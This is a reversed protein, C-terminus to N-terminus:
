MQNQEARFKKETKRITHIESTQIQQQETDLTAQELDEWM